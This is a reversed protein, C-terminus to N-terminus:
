DIPLCDRHECLNQLGNAIAHTTRETQGPARNGIALIFGIQEPAEKRAYIAALHATQVFPLKALLIILGDIFWSPSDQPPGVLPESGAQVTFHQIRALRGATLLAKMDEPYLTCCFDNPDLQLYRNGDEGFVCPNLDKWQM